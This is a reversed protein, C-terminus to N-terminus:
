RWPCRVPAPARALHGLNLTDDPRRGGARGPEANVGAPADV